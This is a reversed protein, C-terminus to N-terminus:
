RGLLLPAPLREHDDSAAPYAKHGAFAHMWEQRQIRLAALGAGVASWFWIGGQPGELYPSFSTNVLAALWYVFLWADIRAWMSLKRRRARYFTVLLSGGFALQFTVWLGLGPVGSRALITLHTNHPSRLAHDASLQFGDDDALNLGFGKGTWFYPGHVTYGVIKSWWRERWETTGELDERQDNNSIVSSVNDLIHGVSLERGRELKVHPDVLVFVSIVLLVAVTPRHWRRRPWIVVIVAMTLVVALMGGRSIAGAIGFGAFWLVWLAEELLPWPTQISYLGLLLFAACAALHVCTDGGNFVLLPVDGSGPVIPIQQPLKLYILAALPVWILFLPLLRRAWRTIMVFHSRNLASSLALAFLGYGWVTGDRFADLGYQPVYPLTRLAGWAMFALLLLQVMSLRIRAFCVILTLAALALVAEGVYLPRIGLYAFGRNLFAYGILTCALASLSVAPLRDGLSLFLIAICAGGALLAIIPSRAIAAGVAASAVVVVAAPWWPLLPRYSLSATTM